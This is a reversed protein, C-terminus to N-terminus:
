GVDRSEQIALNRRPIDICVEAGGVARNAIRVTGGLGRVVNFVLFLGLGGGDRGKTSNYPRGIQRLVEDAFGPGTDRVAFRITDSDVSLVFEVFGPSADLANDLVNFLMQRLVDDAAIKVDPVDPMRVALQVPNRRARWQELVDQAFAKLALNRSQEGRAEGASLLIGTVIQKCRQLQVQLENLEQVLDDNETIIPDHKWDGLIVSMTALPTGLEHAAGSALLGIRMVQERESAEERMRAIQADGSRLNSAIRTMFFVLLFADLGFALILGAAYLQAFRGDWQPPLRLPEYFFALLLVCVATVGAVKWASRTRCLLVALIVQLLFLFVFPNYLGGSFYLQLALSGVDALLSFLLTTESVEQEEHWRLQCSINFGILCVLVSLMAPLPLAIDLGVVAVVISLVQGVVAFWRLQILQLMNEHGTQGIVRSEATMRLATNVLASSVLGNVAESVTKPM